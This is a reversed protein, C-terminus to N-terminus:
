VSTVTEWGAAGGVRLKNLTTDFYLAGNMHAPAGATTARMPRYLILFDVKEGYIQFATVPTVSGNPTASFSLYCGNATATWNETAIFAWGARSGAAYATGNHGFANQQGIVDNAAIATKTANSGNARRYGIQNTAGFADLFGRTVVGDAEGIQFVLNSTHAPLPLANKSYSGNNLPAAQLAEIETAAAAFNARVSSTTANGEAPKTADIASTM